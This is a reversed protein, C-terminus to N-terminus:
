AGMLLFSSITEGGSAAANVWKTGNYQLTQGTVPSTVEFATLDALGHTHSSAAKGDIQTQIGSTVGDLYGIETSSVGSVVDQKGSLDIAANVWNTGNYQLVQGNAASTIVVDGVNDLAELNGFYALSTWATTGNGLKVKGTDTELGFEGSALTPNATTWQTATGRRIQIKTPM